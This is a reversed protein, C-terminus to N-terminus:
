VPWTCQCSTAVYKILLPTKGENKFKFNYENKTKHEILGCEMDQTEFTLIPKEVSDTVVSHGLKQKLEDLLPRYVTEQFGERCLQIAFLALSDAVEENGLNVNVKSRLYVNYFYAEIDIAEKLMRDILWLTDKGPFTRYLLNAKLVLNQMTLLEPMQTQFQQHFKPNLPHGYRADTLMTSIQEELWDFGFSIVEGESNVIYSNPIKEMLFIYMLFTNQPDNVNCRYFVYDKEFESFVKKEKMYDLLSNCSQCANGGGLSMWIWKHKQLALQQIEEFTQKDYVSSCASFLLISISFLLRIM